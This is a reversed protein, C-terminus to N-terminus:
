VEEVEMEFKTSKSVADVDDMDIEGELYARETVDMNGIFSSQDEAVAKEVLPRLKALVEPNQDITLDQIAKEKNSYTAIPDEKDGVYYKAGANNILGYQRAFYRLAMLDDIGSGARLFIPSERFGGDNIKNKIVRARTLTAVFDGKDKGGQPNPELVFPDEEVQEGSKFAKKRQLEIMVSMVFRTLKGGPLIYPLNTFTPYKAALRADNSQEIRARTQNVCIVTADYEAFYDLMADWYETMAKAHVGPQTKGFVTGKLIEEETVKNKMRPISDNVFFRVGSKLLELTRKAADAIGTPMYVECMSKPIGIRTLYAWESTREFDLIAAGEGTQRIYNSTIGYSLTSKGAGEDGHIQIVRGRRPIQRLRLVNDLTIYGWPTTVEQLDSKLVKWDASNTGASEKQYTALMERRMTPTWTRPDVKVKSEEEKGKGKKKMQAM